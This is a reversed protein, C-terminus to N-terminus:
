LLALLLLVLLLFGLAGAVAYAVKQRTEDDYGELVGKPERPRELTRHIEARRPTIPEMGKARAAKLAELTREAAEREARLEELVARADDIDQGPPM